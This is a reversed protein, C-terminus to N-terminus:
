PQDGLLKYFAKREGEEEVLVDVALEHAEVQSRARLYSFNFAMATGDAKAVLIVVKVRGLADELQVSGAPRKYSVRGTIAGPHLEAEIAEDGDGDLASTIKMFAQPTIRYVVVETSPTNELRQWSGFIVNPDVLGRLRTDVAAAAPAAPGPAAAAAAASRNLLTAVAQQAGVTTTQSAQIAFTYGAAIMEYGAVRLAQTLTANNAAMASDAILQNGICELTYFTETLEAIRLIRLAKLTEEDTGEIAAASAATGPLLAARPDLPLPTAAGTAQAAPAAAPLTRLISGRIPNLTALLANLDDLPPLAGTANARTLALGVSQAATASGAGPAGLDLGPLAFSPSFPQGAVEQGPAETVLLLLLLTVGLGQAAQGLTPLARLAAGQGRGARSFVGGAELPRALGSLLLGSVLLTAFRSPAM